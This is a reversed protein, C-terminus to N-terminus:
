LQDVSSVGVKPALLIAYCSRWCVSACGHRFTAPRCGNGPRASSRGPRVSSRGGYTILRIGASCRQPWSMGREHHRRRCSAASYVLIAAATPERDAPATGRPMALPGASPWGLARGACWGNVRAAIRSVRMRNRGAAIVPPRSHSVIVERLSDGIFARSLGNMHKAPGDPGGRDGTRAPADPVYRGPRLRRRAIRGSRGPRQSRVTLPRLQGARRAPRREEGPFRTM